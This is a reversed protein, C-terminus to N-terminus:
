AHDLGEQAPGCLLRGQVDFRSGHCPCDWTREDPNWEVQCGLHPCRTSVIHLSGNEDKYVGAKEGDIEVVGGHGAPLDELEARGPAFRERCLGKVAQKGDEWLNAASASLDLRQPSFVAGDPDQEGTILASLIMASVMSSTMGWKGFGTCVYWNPTSPAYPGIYPVGDLTMCDQASWHCVQEMEPWLKGAAQALARYRGGAQNEGTRHNEGGVLLLDGCQRLSLGGPDVGYYLGELRRAGKLAVVYSREQHMRMFYYGPVNLFPYHVAFVVQKARILGDTTRVEGGEVSIVRSHERVELGEALAGLFKLPHFRGQNSMRVAGTVPFPLQTDLTFVADLGLQAAAHAEARLPDEAQTSYLYAPCDEWDCDIHEDRILSRYEEVARQNAAAYQRAGDEGKERLLKEYIMGHQATVKATTNRTQGSGLRDAELLLVRVGKKKLLWATLVGAMGGGIVVVETELTGELTPRSPLSVTESWISSM